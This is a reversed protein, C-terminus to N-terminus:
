KGRGPTEHESRLESIPILYDRLKAAASHTNDVAGAIREEITVDRDLQDRRRKEGFLGLLAKLSFCLENSLHIMRSDHRDEVDSAVLARHVEQHRDHLSSIEACKELLRRAAKSFQEVDHNLHGIRHLVAVRSSDNMAVDLRFVDHDGFFRSGNTDPHHIETEGPGAAVLAEGLRSRHDACDGVEARLLHQASVDIVTGVDVGESGDEVFHEGALWWEGTLHLRDDIAHDM